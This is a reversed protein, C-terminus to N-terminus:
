LVWCLPQYLVSSPCRVWVLAELDLVQSHNCHCSMIPKGPPESLFSDGQLVPSRSKIEPNPLDGPPPCPLGSWYEQRSFEMFLPTQRAATWPTVFLWVRSFHSLVACQQFINLSEVLPIVATIFLCQYLWTINLLFDASSPSQNSRPILSVLYIQPIYFGCFSISDVFAQLINCTFKSIIWNFIRMKLRYLFQLLLITSQSAWM